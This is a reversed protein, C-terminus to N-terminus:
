DSEVLRLARRAAGLLSRRLREDDFDAVRPDRAAIMLGGSIMVTGVLLEDDPEPGVLLLVIHRELDRMAPSDRLLHLVAPDSQMVATLHRNDVVLDVLGALVTEARESRDQQREATETIRVLRDLAPAIVAQVIDEKARFQHYVAAKTVGLEDAIMQLSTGSVGHRAFLDLAAALVRDRATGAQRGSM